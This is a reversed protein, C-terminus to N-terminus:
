KKQKVIYIPRKKTELYINGIYRGVIGLCFLQLGGVALIISVLSPWGATPDGNIAARIVIFILSVVAFAFSVLGLLSALALPVESFAIIGELSYKFLDWFSWSTTGAVREVNEYPLYKVKFGVWGFIGKSFRNYEPLSLIADRVPRTMIRYDRAGDVINTKSIKNILKYFMRSFFSRVPPEGNRTVRRTGVMDYDENIIDALMTPLLEPPDQLDVDMVAVFDGEAAQLGAYLAAEKGFNRSFSIFHVHQPHAEQLHHIEALTDDKSGDDIFFYEVDYESLESTVIEQVRKYFIPIMEQENYCPVVLDISAMVRIEKMKQRYNVASLEKLVLLVNNHVFNRCM